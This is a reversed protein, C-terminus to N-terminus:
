ADNELQYKRMKRYLTTRHMGLAAASRGIHYRNSSLADEIMRREAEDRADHLVAPISKEPESNLYQVMHPPLDDATVCEGTSFVVCREIVNELERINGPWPYEFFVRYVDRDIQDVHKYNTLSYRSLFEQALHILDERRERLPPIELHIVNIRYYLDERFEGSSVMKKLDRNTACIIRADSTLSKVAGLPEYTRDSLVRLLKVQMVQSLDGIEDLFLTGRQALTFRGPKAKNAGTFAGKEYGFLESELLTDPISACNVAIFPGERNASHHHLSKALVEKGSGSEGTILVTASSSAILPIRSLMEKMRESRSQVKGQEDVLRYNKLQELATIDRFTEVGGVLKGDSSFLPAASVSVSVKSGKLNIIYGRQERTSTVTEFAQRLPCSSECMSSKFVESCSMSLAQERPIGTIREAAANFFTIRWDRDVTFVGDSISELITESNLQNM